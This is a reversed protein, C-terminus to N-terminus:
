LKDVEGYPLPRLYVADIIAFVSFVMSLTFALSLVVTLYYKKERLLQRRLAQNIM